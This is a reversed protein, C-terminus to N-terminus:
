SKPRYLCVKNAGFLEESELVAASLSAAPIGEGLM